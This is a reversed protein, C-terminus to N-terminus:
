ISSIVMDWEADKMRMFLNDRPKLYSMTMETLGVAANRSARAFEFPM